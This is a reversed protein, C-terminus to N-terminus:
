PVPWLFHEQLFNEMAIQIQRQHEQESISKATVELFRAHLIQNALALGYEYPHVPDRRTAIVLTPVGIARLAAASQYPIDASLREFKIATEEIGPKTFQDALSRAVAPADRKLGAYDPSALLARLGEEPGNERILASIRAFWPRAPMPECLWAPRILILGRVRAPYRLALNLAIGAGMSIGGCIASPINLSDLLAIVDDAYGNFSLSEAPGLPQTRGHGRCDLCLMRLWSAPAFLGTPQSCDGGLGHQLVLPVGGGGSDVYHFRIGQHTFVPM